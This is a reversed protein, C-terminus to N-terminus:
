TVTLTQLTFFKMHWTIMPSTRATTEPKSISMFVNTTRGGPLGQGGVTHLAVPQRAPRLSTSPFLGRRVLSVQAGTDVLVKVCKSEGDDSTVTLNLAM